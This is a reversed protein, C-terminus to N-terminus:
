DQMAKLITELEGVYDTTIVRRICPLFYYQSENAKSGMVYIRHPKEHTTNSCIAIGLDLFKRDCFGDSIHILYDSDRIAFLEGIAQNLSNDSKSYEDPFDRSLWDSTIKHNYKKILDQLEKVIKKDQGKASVYFKM